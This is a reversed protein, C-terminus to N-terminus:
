IAVPISEIAPHPEYDALTFHKTRFDFLNSVETDLTLTPLRRAGRSTMEKVAEVQNEYIHADWFSHHYVGPKYGTIQCLALMIAAYQVMNMPVGVPLDASRQRMGLHLKGNMIRVFVDGHCPSVVAGQDAGWGNWFPIWPTIRMTRRNPRTKISRVLYEWQNFTPGLPMPFNHFAAGYSAPGFDGPAVGIKRCKVATAWQSWWKAATPSFKEMAAITRAGNIFGLLEGIGAKWFSIERETILPFGNGLDFHLTPPELCTIAGVGQPTDKILEGHKLVHRLLDQYQSDPTREQFPKM